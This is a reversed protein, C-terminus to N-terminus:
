DIFDAFPTRDPEIPGCEDCLGGYRDVIANVEDMIAKMLTDDDVGEIRLELFDDLPHALRGGYKDPLRYVEYGAKRLEDAAADVDLEVEPWDATTWEPDGFEGSFAVKAMLM